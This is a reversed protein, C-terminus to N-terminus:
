SISLAQSLFGAVKAKSIGYGTLINKMGGHLTLFQEMEDQMNRPILSIMTDEKTVSLIISLNDEEEFSLRICKELILRVNRLKKEDEKSHTKKKSIGELGRELHM